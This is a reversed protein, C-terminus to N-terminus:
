NSLLNPQIGNNAKLDNILRRFVKLTGWTDAKARHLEGVKINFRNLLSNLSLREMPKNFVISWARATQITDVKLNRRFKFNLNEKELARYLFNVDFDINHGVAGVYRSDKSNQKIFGIMKSLSEKNSNHTPIWTKHDIRNVAMAEPDCDKINFKLRFGGEAIFELNENVLIMHLEILPHTNYDLGGTETDFVAYTIDSM